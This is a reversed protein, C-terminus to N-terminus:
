GQLEELQQAAFLKLSPFFERYCGALYEENELFLQYAPAINQMYAARRSLGILSKEIGYQHRYNFLWDQAKMYYLVKLFNAPLFAANAELTEYVRGSFTKLTSATFIGPDNALFYDNLVDVIPGAYLRFAPRFIEKAKKIVAHTDTFEDIKHHLAVGLQIKGSLGLDPGSKVFDAILNGVLVEPHEFSLYAHALHNMDVFSCNM